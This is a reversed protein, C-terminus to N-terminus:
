IMESNKLIEELQKFINLQFEDSIDIEYEGHILKEGILDFLKDGLQFACVYSGSNLDIENLKVITTEPSIRKFIKWVKSEHGQKVFVESLIRAENFSIRSVTINENLSFANTYKYPYLTSWAEIHFVIKDEKLEYSTINGIEEIAKPTVLAISSILRWDIPLGSKHIEIQLQQKKEGLEENSLPTLLIYSDKEEKLNLTSGRPLVGERQLEEANKNLLNDIVEEVLHSNNPLFPLGGINVKDISKYLKNEKYQADDKWPFLVYAGFATREYKGDQEVVISDRYRHMTNIDENKPGINGKSDVDIKYKADFIYQFLYDKGKKGISLMSDPEQSVTPSKKTRYQYQLIIEEGTLRHNFKFTSSQDQQLRVYLGGDHYKVIDQEKLDCKERLIKGLKIFTWYEYLMAINKLSMKYFDGYLMLSQFVYAYVHFAERYGTAMQLVLSHVSRDLKGVQQWLKKNLHLDLTKFMTMLIQHIEKDPERQQDACWGEYHKILKGIKASIRTMTWKIYRNEHNDVTRQKKILLGKTPMVSRGHISLGNPVDIFRHANKRLYNRSVSDQRRIKDGRVEEYITQLQQHPMREIHQIAKIYEEFHLEILRYFETPSPDQYIEASAKLHTRQIFSYSLHHIEKNIENVLERYDKVYDLKTPFIEITFGLITQNEKRVELTSLGVENMFHLVGSLRNEDEDVATIAERFPAYEHYFTYNIENKPRIYLQYHGNEFFIPKHKAIQYFDEFQETDRNYITIRANSDSISFNMEVDDTVSAHYKTNLDGKIIVKLEDTEIELLKISKHSGSLLLAM